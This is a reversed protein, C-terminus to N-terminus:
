KKSKLAQIFAGRDTETVQIVNFRSTFENNFFDHNYKIADGIHLVSPKIAM